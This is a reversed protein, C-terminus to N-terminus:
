VCRSTYLLCTHIRGDASIVKLLGDAYTSKLKTLMRYELIDGIIPHKGILKEQRKYM